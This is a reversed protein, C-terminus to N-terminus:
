RPRLDSSRRTPFSHFERDAYSIVTHSSNLRTSKRDRGPILDIKRNLEPVWFSHIVDDTTGVVDVNTRVPIHIENATVAKTGAYGVEWFWQHGTVNISMSTTSRFLTTYPFLPVRPRCVLDSHSQLESTHEESRPRPHPRDQPQARAGLLQPDRRGHNRRRRRENSRPHPDRQRHGGEHRRLRGGLVVPPRDRQHEDLDYIPLADHLSLTSSETPM